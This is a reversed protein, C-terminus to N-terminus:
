FLTRLDLEVQTGTKDPCDIDGDCRLRIDVCSGDDCNFEDPKCTNLNLKVLQTVNDKNCNIDGHVEWELTGFPYDESDVTAFPSDKGYIELKWKM